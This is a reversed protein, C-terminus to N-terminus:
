RTVGTKHVALLVNVPANFHVRTDSSSFQRLVDRCFCVWLSIIACGYAEPYM